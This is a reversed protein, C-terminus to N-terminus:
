AAQEEGMTFQDSLSVPYMLATPCIQMLMGSALVVNFIVLVTRSRCHYLVGYHLKLMVTIPIRPGAASYFM